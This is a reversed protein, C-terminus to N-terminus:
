YVMVSVWIFLLSYLGTWAVRGGDSGPVPPPPTGVPSPAGGTANCASIDTSVGCARTLALAQALEVGLSKLLDPNQYLNCLCPLDNTVADKIPDCCSSPPSTSNLYEACPVLKSACSAVQQADTQSIATALLLVAAILSMYANNFAM